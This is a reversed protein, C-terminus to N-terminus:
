AFHLRVSVNKRLYSSRKALATSGLVERVKLMTILACLMVFNQTRTIQVREPEGINPIWTPIRDAENRWVTESRFLM